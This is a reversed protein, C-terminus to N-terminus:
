IFTKGFIMRFDLDPYHEAFAQQGLQKLYYDYGYNPNKHVADPGFQHHSPCLYVKLGYKESLKRNPGGFIHHEELGSREMKYGTEETCIYCYNKQPQIISKM